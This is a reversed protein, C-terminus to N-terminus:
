SSTIKEVLLVEVYSFHLDNGHKCWKRCSSEDIFWFYKTSNHELQAMYEVSFSDNSTM